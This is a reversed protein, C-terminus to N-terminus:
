PVVPLGLKQVFAPFRPDSRLAKLDQDIATVGLGGDHNRYARELWEFAPDPDGRVAYLSAIQYGAGEAFSPNSVLARIADDAAARNGRKLQTYAVAHLRMPEWPERQAEALAEDFKGRRAVLVAIFASHGVRRAYREAEENRGAALLMWAIIRLGNNSFPDLETAKHMLQLGEDFRGKAFLTSGLSMLAGPDNPNLEIALRTERESERYDYDANLSVSGRARHAEALDPRLELAKDVAQRANQLAVAYPKGAMWWSMYTWAEAMRAYALAYQPDVAVAQEYRAIADRMTAEDNARAMLFNGQLLADYAALNGSPPQDTKATPRGIVASLATAVAQAIESQVAFVDRLERDYTQAWVAAEDSVRVLEAVIRVRDGQRRVTGQLLHAVNLKAGIAAVGEHGGRFQFSSTRGIVKLDRSQALATILDESLGDSFYEDSSKGSQNVLPLVAISRDSEPPVSPKSRQIGWIVAVAVGAALTSMVIPRIIRRSARGRPSAAGLIFVEIPTSINKLAQGGLSHFPAAVRNRVAHFVQESICISGPEALGHIRSAINVGDGMVKDGKHEVDGLHIGIRLEMRREPEAAANKESFHRQIAIACEVAALAGAFEILFADGVTEIERGGHRVLVERVWTRHLELLEIALAENRHALASYGVLDTFMIAALRRSPQEAVRGPEEPGARVGEVRYGFGHVTKIAEGSPGLAERLKAVTSTLASDSIVRGPWVAVILNDKSVAEGSRQLLHRLVELPKLELEVPRGDVLLQMSREDFMASGFSWRGKENRAVGEGM